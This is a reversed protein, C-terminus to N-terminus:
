QGFGPERGANAPARGSPRYIAQARKKSLKPAGAEEILQDLARAVANAKADVTVPFPLDNVGQAPPKIIKLGAQYWDQVLAKANKVSKIKRCSSSPTWSGSALQCSACDNV